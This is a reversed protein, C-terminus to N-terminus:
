IVEQALQVRPEEGRSVDYEWWFEEATDTREYAQEALTRYQAITRLAAANHRCWYESEDLENCEALYADEATVCGRPMTFDLEPM